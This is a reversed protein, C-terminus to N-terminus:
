DNNLENFLEDFERDRQEEDFGSFKFFTENDLYIKIGHQNYYKGLGKIKEIYRINNINIIKDNFKIFKVM